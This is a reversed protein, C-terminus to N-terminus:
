TTPSVIRSDGLFVLLQLAKVIGEQLQRLLFLVGVPLGQSALEGVAESETAGLPVYIV